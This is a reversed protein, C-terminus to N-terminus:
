KVLRHGHHEVLVYKPDVDLALCYKKFAASKNDIHGLWWEGLIKRGYWIFTWAGYDKLKM